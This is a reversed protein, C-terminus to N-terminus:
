VAGTAPPALPPAAGGGGGGEGGGSVMMHPCDGATGTSAGELIWGAAAGRAM